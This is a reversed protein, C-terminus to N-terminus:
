ITPPSNEFSELRAIRDLTPPHSSLFPMPAGSGELKRIKRLFSVLGRTPYGAKKVIAYGVKDAEYEDQRSYRSLIGGKAIELAIKKSKGEPDKFLLQSLYAVGYARSIAKAPHREYAHGIEHALVGALESDDATFDFLGTHVYIIGGPITFANPTKDQVIHFRYDFDRRPLGKLLREGMTQIRGNLVSDDVLPMEKAIEAEFKTGIEKEEPVSILNLEQVFPEVYACGACVSALVLVAFVRNLLGFERPFM